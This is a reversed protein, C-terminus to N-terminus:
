KGPVAHKNRKHVYLLQDSKNIASELSDGAELPYNGHSFSVRKDKDTHRLNEKIRAIVDLSKAYDTDFLILLFEDGGARIGYDSKRISLEIARGLSQIVKDGM